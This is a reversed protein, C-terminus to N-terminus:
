IRMFYECINKYFKLKLEKLNERGRKIIYKSINRFFNM